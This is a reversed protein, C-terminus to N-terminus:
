RIEALAVGAVDAFPQAPGEGHLPQAADQNRQVVQRARQVREALHQRDALLQARQIRVVRARLTFRALLWAAMPTTSSFM